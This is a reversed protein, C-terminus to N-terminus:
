LPPSLYHNIKFFLIVFIVLSSVNFFRRDPFCFVTVFVPGSSTSKDPVIEGIALILTIQTPPPQNFATFLIISHPSSPTSNMAIFVSECAKYLESASFFNFIQFTIVHPRPAQLSGSIPFFAASSDLSSILAISSPASIINIVHPSPPQVQVHADGTTALIAFSSPANVTQTTVFGNPNSPCFLIALDRSQNVSNFSLTSVSIV